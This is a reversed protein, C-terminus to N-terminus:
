LYYSIPVECVTGTMNYYLYLFCVLLYGVHALFQYKVERYVACCFFDSLLDCPLRACVQCLDNGFCGIVAVTVVVICKGSICLLFVVLIHSRRDLVIDIDSVIIGNEDAIGHPPVGERHDNVRQEVLVIEAALGNNREVRVHTRM